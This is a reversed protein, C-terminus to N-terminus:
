HPRNQNFRCNPSQPPSAPCPTIPAHPPSLGSSRGGVVGCWLGGGTMGFGMGVGAMKEVM